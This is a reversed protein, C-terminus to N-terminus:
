PQEKFFLLFGGLGEVEYLRDYKVSSTKGDFSLEDVIIWRFGLELSAVAFM